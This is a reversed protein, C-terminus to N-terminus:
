VFSLYIRASGQKSSASYKVGLTEILLEIDKKVKEEIEADDCYIIIRCDMVRTM